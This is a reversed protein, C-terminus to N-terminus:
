MVPVPKKGPHSGRHCWTTTCCGYEPHHCPLLSPFRKGQARHGRCNCGTTPSWLVFGRPTSPNILPALSLLQTQWKSHCLPLLLNIARSRPQEGRQAWGRWIDASLKAGNENMPANFVSLSAQSIAERGAWGIQPHADWAGRDRACGARDGGPEPVAKQGAFGDGHPKCM